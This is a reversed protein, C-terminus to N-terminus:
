SSIVDPSLGRSSWGSSRRRGKSSRTPGASVDPQHWGARQRAPERGRPGDPPAGDAWNYPHLYPYPSRLTGGRPFARFPLASALPAWQGSWSRSISLGSTRCRGAGPPGGRTRACVDDGVAAQDDVLLTAAL